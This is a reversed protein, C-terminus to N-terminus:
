YHYFGYSFRPSGMYGLHNYAYIGNHMVRQYYPNLLYASNYGFTRMPDSERKKEAPLSLLPQSINLKLLLSRLLTKLLHLHLVMMFPLLPSNMNMFQHLPFNLWMFPCDLIRPEGM